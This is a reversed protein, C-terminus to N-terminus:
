VRADVVDTQGVSQFLAEEMCDRLKEALTPFALPGGIERLDSHVSDLQAYIQDLRKSIQFDTMTQVTTVQNIQLM